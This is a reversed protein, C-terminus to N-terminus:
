LTTQNLPIEYLVHISFLSPYHSTKDLGAPNSISYIMPYYKLDIFRKIAYSLWFFQLFIDAIFNESNSWSGRRTHSLTTSVTVSASAAAM